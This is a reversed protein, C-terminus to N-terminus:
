YHVAVPFFNFALRLRNIVHIKRILIKVCIFAYDIELKWSCFFHGLNLIAIKVSRRAELKFTLTLGKNQILEAPRTYCCCAMANM